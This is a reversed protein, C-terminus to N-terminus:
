YVLLSHRLTLCTHKDMIKNDEIKGNYLFRNLIGTFNAVSSKIRSIHNDRKGARINRTIVLLLAHSVM